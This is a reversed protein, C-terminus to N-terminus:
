QQAQKRAAKAAEKKKKAAQRARSQAMKERKMPNMKHPVRVLPTKAGRVPALDPKALTAGKLSEMLKQRPILQAM